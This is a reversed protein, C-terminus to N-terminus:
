YSLETSRRKYKTNIKCPSKIGPENNYTLIHKTFLLHTPTRLDTFVSLESTM